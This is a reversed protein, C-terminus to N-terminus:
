SELNAAVVNKSSLPRQQQFEEEQIFPHTKMMIESIFSKTGQQQQVQKLASISHFPCCFNGQNRCVRCV